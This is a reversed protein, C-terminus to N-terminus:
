SAPFIDYDGLLDVYVDVPGAGANYLDIEGDAGVKVLAHNAATHGKTFNLAYVGPRSTGDAYAVLYGSGSPSPVTLNLDVATVGTAPVGHAGTVKLKLTSHAALRAVKGTGAGTRTNLIRAPATPLFESGNATTGYWGVLDAVLNASARGTNRLVVKGDVLPLVIQASATQGTTWYPGTVSSGTTGHTSAVLTGSSKTTTATVNLVVANAGAPVGHTGGVALTVSHGGAVPGTSGGTGNRTDLLRVPSAPHYTDAYQAHSQIGVTAVDVTVAGSSGNYIDVSGTPTVKVTAENLATRGSEFNITSTGPRTTGATYLTLSGSAKAASTVLQLQAADVGSSDARLTAASLKLVGHAAITKETDYQPTMAVFADASHFTTTATTTRGLRDTQTLTATYTGPAPYQHVTQGVGDGVSDHSGDGFDLVRSLVEWSDTPEPVAFQATGANIQGDSTADVAASLSAPPPTATAAMTWNAGATSTGDSDTVTIRALYRGPTSYTHAIPSGAAGTVPASGDGFDVSYTLAKAWNSVADTKVSTDFPAIGSSPYADAPITIVDEREVAGRDPPPTGTGTNDVIPDDARPHGVYDTGLEGPANSDASDILRSREPPQSGFPASLGDIDHTGQATGAQFATSSAYSTGGWSYEARSPASAGTDNAAVNYDATVQDTSDTSVAYLPATPAPCSSSQAAGTNIVVNNEVAGSSGGDLSIGTACPALLTNSTVYAGTTGTVAIGGQRMTTIVDTTVTVRAAGPEVRVGYAYSPGMWSRSVTVDSSTGDVGVATGTAPVSLAPHYIALQNLTVNESGKVAVGNGGDDTFSLSEVDVDHVADLTLAPATGPWSLVARSNTTGPQAGTFTIPADSTGSRTLTVAGSYPDGKPSLIRVTDGPAVVDAAAQVSCFPLDEAGVGSDSCAVDHNVYLTAGSGSDAAAPGTGWGSMLGAVVIVALSLGVAPRPRHM